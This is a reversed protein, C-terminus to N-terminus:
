KGVKGWCSDDGTKLFNWREITEKLTTKKEFSSSYFVIMIDKLLPLNSGKFRRDSKTM